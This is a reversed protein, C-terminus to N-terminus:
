ERAALNAELPRLITIVSREMTAERTVFARGEDVVAKRADEDGLYREVLARM